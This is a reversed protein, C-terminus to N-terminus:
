GRLVSRILPQLGNWAIQAGICLLIFAIVRVVGHITQQSIRTTIAPAFAYCFYVGICILVMGALTGLQAVATDILSAHKAHASLTLMVVLTGPGATIPFSFPYFVKEDLSRHDTTAASVGERTEEERETLLRWGMAAVVLGGAVQVIPLSISFFALVAAGALDVGLLFFITTIAIKRALRHYVQRPAIGVLGFFVLASGLPNILPLLASFSLSLHKAFLLM